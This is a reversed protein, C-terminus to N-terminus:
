DTEASGLGLGLAADNGLVAAVAQRQIRDFVTLCHALDADSIGALHKRRLESAVEDLVGIMQWGKGTLHVTKGRRDAEHQRREILSQKELKDLIHVLTPGEIGVFGALAKQQQGNAGRQLHMLVVWRAQTLGHPRMKEDLRARWQRALRGLRFGFQERVDIIEGNESSDIV